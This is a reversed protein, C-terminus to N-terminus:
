GGGVAKKAFEVDRRPNMYGNAQLTAVYKALDEETLVDLDLPPVPVKDAGGFWGGDRRVYGATTQGQSLAGLPTASTLKSCRARRTSTRRM